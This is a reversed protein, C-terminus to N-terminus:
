KRIMSMMEWIQCIDELVRASELSIDDLRGMFISVYSAGANQAAIAQNASFVLTVNTPVGDDSLKRVASLGAPIMPIKITAEPFWKLIDYAEKLM